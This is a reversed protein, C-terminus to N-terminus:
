YYKYIKLDDIDDICSNLSYNNNDGEKNANQFLNLDLWNDMLSLPNDNHERFPKDLLLIDYIEQSIYESWSNAAQKTLVPKSVTYLYDNWDYERQLVSNVLENIYDKNHQWCIMGRDTYLETKIAYKMTAAHHYYEDQMIKQILKGIGMFLNQEVISFTHAFSSMFQLRELCYFAVLALFSENYLEQNNPINGLSYNLSYYKFKYLQKTVIDNRDKIFNNNMVKEFVYNPNPVALRVIESYTLAHLREIETNKTVAHAFDSDTIIPSLLFLMNNAAISDTEWQFAINELMTEVINVDAKSFDVRSKELDIEDEQWDLSKQSKYLDFLKQHKRNISDILAPPEGLILSTEGTLWEKNNRNFIPLIKNNNM